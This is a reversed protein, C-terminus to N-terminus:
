TGRHLQQAVRLTASTAGLHSMAAILHEWADGSVVLRVRIIGARELSVDGTPTRVASWDQGIAYTM